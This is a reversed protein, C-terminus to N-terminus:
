RSAWSARLQQAIHPGEINQGIRKSIAKLDLMAEMRLPLRKQATYIELGDARARREWENQPLLNKMSGTADIRRNNEEAVQRKYKASKDIGELYQETADARANHSRVEVLHQLMAKVYNTEIPKESGVPNVLYNRFDEQTKIRPSGLHGSMHELLQHPYYYPNTLEKPIVFGRAALEDKIDRVLRYHSRLGEKVGAQQEPTLMRIRNKLDVLKNIVEDKTLGMPLQMYRPNGHIDTGVKVQSRFYLDRYLVAQQFLHLPNSNQIKELNARNDTWKTSV